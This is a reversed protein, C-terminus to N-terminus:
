DIEDEDGTIRTVARSPSAARYIAAQRKEYLQALLQQQAAPLNLHKKIELLEYEVRILLSEVRALHEEM